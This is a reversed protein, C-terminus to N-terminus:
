SHLLEFPKNYAKPESCHLLALKQLLFILSTLFLLCCYGSQDWVVPQGGFPHDVEFELVVAHSVSSLLCVDIVASVEEFCRYHAIM